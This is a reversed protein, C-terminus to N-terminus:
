WTIAHGHLYHRLVLLVVSLVALGIAPMFSVSENPADSMGNALAILVFTAVSFLAAVIAFFLLM